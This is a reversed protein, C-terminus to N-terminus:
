GAPAFLPASARQAALRRRAIEISVPDNEIGIFRMGEELCAVGTSGSGAFPDLVLGGPRTVLRVLWRMLAVPKVCCCHGDPDHVRESPPAKSCYMFRSQDDAPFTTFFRPDSPCDDDSYSLTKFFRSAGGSDGRRSFVTDGAGAQGTFGKRNVRTLDGSTREGAQEDLLRIPCSEHCEYAAVTETGDPEAYCQGGSKYRYDKTDERGNGNLVGIGLGKVKRTGVCRCSDLHQLVVNAPYRGAPSLNEKAVEPWGNGWGKGNPTAPARHNPDAPNVSIRCVGVNLAGTGHELVNAAVTGKIPARFVLIPEYSTKLQTNWGDWERAADTALNDTSHSHQSSSRATKELAKRRLTDVTSSLLSVATSETITATTASAFAMQQTTDLSQFTRSRSLTILKLDSTLAACLADTAARSESKPRGLWTKLAEVATTRDRISGCPCEWADPPASSDETSWPDPSAPPSGAITVPAKSGTTNRAVPKPASRGSEGNIPPPVVSCLEAIIASSTPKELAASLSVLGPVTGNRPTSMGTEIRSKAFSIGASKARSSYEKWSDIIVSVDVTDIAKLVNEWGKREQSDLRASINQGKPLGQGYLWMITDRLEWGADEIACALRHSTRPSGFALLHAGPKAVRLAAEWYPIGPIAKDWSRGLFQLAYPPDCVIADVSAAEMGAMVELCDGELIADDM